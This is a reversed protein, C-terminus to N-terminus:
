KWDKGVMQLVFDSVDELEKVSLKDDYGPMVGKGVRIYQMLSGKQLLGAKGMAKAKLNKSGSWAIINGGGAHCAACNNEFIKRGQSSFTENIDVSYVPSTNGLTLAVLALSGILSTRKCKSARSAHHNSGRDGTSPFLSLPIHLFGAPLIIFSPSIM